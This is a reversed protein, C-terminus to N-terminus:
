NRIVDTDIPTYGMHRAISLIQGKHHYEHTTVHTYVKFPNATFTNDGNASSIEKLYDHEFSSILALVLEDVKRYLSVCDQITQYEEYALSTTDRSLCHRAIWYQYSNAVHVLLNRISGGRGFGEIQRLFDSSTVRSCFDFLVVRSDKVLDYQMILFEKM